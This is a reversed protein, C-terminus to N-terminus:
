INYGTWGKFRMVLANWDEITMIVKESHIFDVDYSVQGNQDYAPVLECGCGIIGCVTDVLVEDNVVKDLIFFHPTFGYPTDKRNVSEATKIFSTERTGAQVAFRDGNDPRGTEHCHPCYSTRSIVM